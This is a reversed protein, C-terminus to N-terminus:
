RTLRDVDCRTLGLDALMRDDLSRLARRERAQDLRDLIGDVVAVIWVGAGRALLHLGDAILSRAEAFPPQSRITTSCNAM